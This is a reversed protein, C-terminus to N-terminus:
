SASVPLEIHIKPWDITYMTGPKGSSSISVEDSFFKPPYPSSSIAWYNFASAARISSWPETGLVKMIARLWRNIDVYAYVYIFCFLFGGRFGVWKEIRWAVKNEKISWIMLHKVQHAQSSDAEKSSFSVEQFCNETTNPYLFCVIPGCLCIGWASM